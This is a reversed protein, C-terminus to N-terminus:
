EPTDGGGSAEFALLKAYLGQIDETLPHVRTVYEDGLDRYGVLGMRIRASSNQDIITNAISWIKRKAGDILNAMSGTTDLVFVLDIIKEQGYPASCGATEGSSACPLPAETQAPAPLAFLSVATCVAIFRLSRFLSRHASPAVSATM